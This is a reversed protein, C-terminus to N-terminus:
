PVVPKDSFCVSHFLVYYMYSIYFHSLNSLSNHASGKFTQNHCFIGCYCIKKKEKRKKNKKLFFLFVRFFGLLLDYILENTGLHLSVIFSM